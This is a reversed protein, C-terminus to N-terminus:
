PVDVRQRNIVDKFKRYDDIVRLVFQPFEEKFTESKMAVDFEHRCTWCAPITQFSIDNEYPSSSVEIVAMGKWGLMTAGCIECIYETM